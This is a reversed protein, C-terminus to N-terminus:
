ILILGERVGRAVAETRTAAGLKGLISSVHFKVTHESISLRAAIEKNGAGEALMTLVESERATLPEGPGAGFEFIDAVAPLLSDMQDAGLSTLGAAAAEIAAAIEELSADRSLAARAGSQLARRLEGRGLDDALLVVPVGAAGTLLRGIREHNEVEAVLVDPHASRIAGPLAAAATDHGLVEFRPRLLAELGARSVASAANVLVRIV